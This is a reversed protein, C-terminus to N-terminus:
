RVAFFEVAWSKNSPNSLNPFALLGGALALLTLATVIIAGPLYHLPGLWWHAARSATLRAFTGPNAEIWEIAERGAARM